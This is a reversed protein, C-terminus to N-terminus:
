TAPPFGAGLWRQYAAIYRPLAGDLLRVAEHMDVGSLVVYDHVMRNRIAAIRVLQECLATDIVGIEDLRRLDARANPDADPARLGALELGLSGLEAVYNFLQDLGRETAKVRNLEAPDESRAADAFRERPFGDGFEAMAAQLARYHRALDTLRALVKRKLAVAREPDSSDLPAGTM